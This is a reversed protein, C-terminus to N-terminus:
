GRNDSASIVQAIAKGFLQFGGGESATAWSLRTGKEALASSTTALLLSLILARPHKM